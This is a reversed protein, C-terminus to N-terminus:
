LDPAENLGRVDGARANKWAGLSTRPGHENARFNGRATAEERCTDSARTGGYTRCVGALLAWIM